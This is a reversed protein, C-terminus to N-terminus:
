QLIQVLCVPLRLQSQGGSVGAGAGAERVVATDVVEEGEECNEHLVCWSKYKRKLTFSYRGALAWSSQCATMDAAATYLHGTKYQFNSWGTNGFFHVLWKESWM